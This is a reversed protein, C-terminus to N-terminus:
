SWWTPRSRTACSRRTTAAAARPPHLGRDRGRDRRRLLRGASWSPSSRPREHRTRRSTPASWCRSSAPQPPQVCRRADEDRGRARRHRPDRVDRTEGGLAVVLTDFRLRHPRRRRRHREGAARGPRDGEVDATICWSSPRRVMGRLPNVCTGRSSSARLLGGAPAAHLAHFERRNVLWIEVDRAARRPSAGAGARDVVGAFGGASSAPRPAAPPPEAYITRMPMDISQPVCWRGADTQVMSAIPRHVLDEVLELLLQGSMSGASVCSHISESSATTSCAPGSRARNM